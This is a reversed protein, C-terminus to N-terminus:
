LHVTTRTDRITITYLVTAQFGTFVSAQFTVNHIRTVRHCRRISRIGYSREQQHTCTYPTTLSNATGTIPNNAVITITQPHNYM